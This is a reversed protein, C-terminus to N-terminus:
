RPETQSDHDLEDWLAKGMEQANADTVQEPTVLATPRKPLPVAPEAKAEKVAPKEPKPSESLAPLTVCGPAAWAALLLIAWCKKM